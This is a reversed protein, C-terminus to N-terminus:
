ILFNREISVETQSTIVKITEKWQTQFVNYLKKLMAQQKDKDKDLIAELEQIKDQTQALKIKFLEMKETHTEELLAVELRHRFLLLLFFKMLLHFFHVRDVAQLSTSQASRTAAWPFGTGLSSQTAMLDAWDVESFNANREGCTSSQYM